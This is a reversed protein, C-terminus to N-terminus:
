WGGSTSGNVLRRRDPKDLDAGRSRTSVVEHTSSATVTRAGVASFHAGTLGDPRSVGYGLASARV